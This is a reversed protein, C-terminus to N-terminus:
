HTSPLSWILQRHTSFNFFFVLNVVVLIYHGLQSYDWIYPDFHYKQWVNNLDMSIFLNGFVCLFKKFVCDWIAYLTTLDM